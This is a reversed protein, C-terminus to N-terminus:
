GGTTWWLVELHISDTWVGKGERPERWPRLMLVPYDLEVVDRNKFEFSTSHGVVPSLRAM